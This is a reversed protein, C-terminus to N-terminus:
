SAKTKVTIHVEDLQKQEVESPSGTMLEVGQATKPFAIV